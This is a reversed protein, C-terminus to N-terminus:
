ASCAFLDASGVALSLRDFPMLRLAVGVEQQEFAISSVADSGGCLSLGASSVLQRHVSVASALM